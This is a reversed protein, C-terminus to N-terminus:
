TNNWWALRARFRRRVRSPKKPVAADHPRLDGYRRKLTQLGREYRREAAAAQDYQGLMEYQLSCAYDVLIKIAESHIPPVDNDSVLRQPRRVCRCEIEYRADPNPHFRLSQYGNINRLRRNYDPVVTGQDIYKLGVSSRPNIEVLLYFADQIDLKELDPIHAGSLTTGLSTYSTFDETKRRRYIRYYWGSHTSQFRSLAASGTTLGDLLFGLQYEINPLTIEIADATSPPIEGDDNTTVVAASVPSPSSEFLPELIRHRAPDTAAMDSDTEGPVTVAETLYSPFGSAGHDPDRKGWCLTFCYEFEGAPEPGFWQFSATTAADPATNPTPLAFRGRRYALQPTGGGTRQYQDDVIGAAEADHQGIIRIPMPYAQGVVRLSKLEILEDPLYYESTYIRYSLGTDGYQSAPWPRWLSMYYIGSEVWVSRIRNTHVVGNEDTIEIVRADWSRDTAWPSATSAAVSLDRRLVWANPVSGFGAVQDDDHVSVTDGDLTPEFDEQTAFRISEEFFLFPADLAIQQLADNIHDDVLDASFTGASPGWDTRRFVAERLDKLGDKM